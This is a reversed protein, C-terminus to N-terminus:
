AATVRSLRTVEGASGTRKRREQQRVRSAKRERFYKGGYDDWDHLNRDEDLFGSQMLALVFQDAKGEWRAAEAVQDDDYRVLSGDQAYSMAWLWMSQLHGMTEVLGIGLLRRLRTTKPHGPLSDHIPIWAM